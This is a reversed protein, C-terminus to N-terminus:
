ELCAIKVAAGMMGWARKGVRGLGVRRCAAAEGDWRVLMIVFLPFGDIRGEEFDVGYYQAEALVIFEHRIDLKPTSEGDLLLTGVQQRNFILAHRLPPDSANILTDLTQPTLKGLTLTTSPVTSTTFILHHARLNAAMAPPLLSTQLVFPPKPSSIPPHKDWEPPLTSDKPFIPIGLGTKNLPILSNNNRNKVYWRILPRIREEPLPNQLPLPLRTLTGLLEDIKPHFPDEYKIRGKWGAWSWSPFYVNKSTRQELKSTPQWLLAVDLLIEPLGYRMPFKFLQRFLHLLGGIGDLIDEDISLERDTYQSIIEAYKLFTQSRMIRTTGDSFVTVSGDSSGDIGLVQKRLSLWPLPPVVIGKDEPIMDEHAIANRCHWFMHGEQFVLLLRSLLKEQLTWARTEWVSDELNQPINVPTILRVGPGVLVTDQKTSRTHERVGAIGMMSSESDAPVITFVAKAYVWDMSALQLAREDQLKQLKDNSQLDEDHHICLADVWLYREGVGKVIEIADKVTRSIGHWYERLGSRQRLTKINTRTLKLTEISPKGWVYSLAVFRLEKGTPVEVVCSDRVDLLRFLPPPRVSGSWSQVSCLEGHNIDCQHLWKAALSLNIKRSSLLNGYRLPVEATGPQPESVTGLHFESVAALSAEPGRGHAFLTSKIRGSRVPDLNTCITLDIYCELPYILEEPSHQQARESRSSHLSGSKLGLLETSDDTPTNVKSTNLSMAVKMMMPILSSTALAARRKARNKLAVPDLFYYAGEHLEEGYGFPWYANTYRSRSGLDVWQRFTKGKLHPQLFDAIQPHRFPDNERRCLNRLLYACLRCWSANHIIRDLPTVFTIKAESSMKLDEESPFRECRSCLGHWGKAHNAYDRLDDSMQETISKPGSITAAQRKGSKFTAQINLKLKDFNASLQKEIEKLDAEALQSEPQSRLSSRIRGMDEEDGDEGNLSGLARSSSPRTQESESPWLLSDWCTDPQLMRERFESVSAGAQQFTTKGKERLDLISSKTKHIIEESTGTLQSLQPRYVTPADSTTLSRQLVPPRRANILEPALDPRIRQARSEELRRTREQISLPTGPPSLDILDDDLPEM